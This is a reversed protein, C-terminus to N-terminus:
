QDQTAFVSFFSLSHAYNCYTAQLLGGTTSMQEYESAGMYIQPRIVQKQFVSDLLLSPHWKQPQYSPSHSDEEDYEKGERKSARIFYSAICPSSRLILVQSLSRSCAVLSWIRGVAMSPAHFCDRDLENHSSWLGLFVQSCGQLLGQPPPYVLGLGSDQGM